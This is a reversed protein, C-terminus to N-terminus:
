FLGRLMTENNVLKPDIAAAIFETYGVSNSKNMDLEDLIHKVQTEEMDALARSGQSLARKLESHDITGSKDKDIENFVARLEDFTNESM